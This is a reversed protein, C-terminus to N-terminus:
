SFQESIGVLTMLSSSLPTVQLDHLERVIDAEDSSGFSSRQSNLNIWGTKKIFGGINLLLPSNKKFFDDPLTKFVHPAEQRSAVVKERPSLGSTSPKTGTPKQIKKQSTPQKRNLYREPDPPLYSPNESNGDDKVQIANLLKPPGKKPLTM